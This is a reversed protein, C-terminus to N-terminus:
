TRLKIFDPRRESFVAVYPIGAALLMEEGKEIDAGVDSARHADSGITVIEGGLEKFRDLIPQTPTGHEGIGYRFSSTNIEIGKGDSIAARMIEDIYPMYLAPPAFGDTYRDMCNIHGIVDYNKYVKISDFLLAFYEDLVEELPRNELFAPYEIPSTLSYHVSGIVFDYPYAGVVNECMELAEGPVFGLEIGKAFRIRGASLAEAETLAKEYAPIDLYSPDSEDPWLPDYHDTVAVGALGRKEAARIVNEITFGRAGDSSFSSHIHQDYLTNNYM